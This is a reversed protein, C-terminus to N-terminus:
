PLITVQPDQMVQWNNRISDGEGFCDCKWMKDAAKSSTSLIWIEWEIDKWLGKQWKVKTNIGRIIWKNM